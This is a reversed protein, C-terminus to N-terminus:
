RARVTYDRKSFQYIIMGDTDVIYTTPVDLESSDYYGELEGPIKLASYIKKMEDTANYAMNLKNGFENTPDTVM